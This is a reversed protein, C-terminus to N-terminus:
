PDVFHSARKTTTTILGWVQRKAPQRAAAGPARGSSSTPRPGRRRAPRGGAQRGPRRRRCVGAARRAHGRRRMRSAWRRGGAARRRRPGAGTAASRRHGRGPEAATRRRRRDDSRTSCPMGAASTAGASRPPCWRWAGRPSAPELLAYDISTSRVSPTRRWRDAAPGGAVATSSRRGSTRRTARWRRRRARRPAVRLHGREVVCARTALLERAREPTPSRWSGSSATPPRAGSRRRPRGTALVYGYGTEPGTPTIGLTVLDGSRPARRPPRSPPGSARSTPSGSTPPCSSWSRTTPASSPPRRSAVAAATNRGM